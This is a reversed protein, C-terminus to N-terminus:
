LPKKQRIATKKTKRGWSEVENCRGIKEGERTLVHTQFLGYM